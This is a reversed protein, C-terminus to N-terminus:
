FAVPHRHSSVPNSQGKFEFLGEYRVAYDARADYYYAAGCKALLNDWLRKAVAQADPPAPRQIPPRLTPEPYFALCYLGFRRGKNRRAANKKRSGNEIRASPVGANRAFDLIEFGMKEIGEAFVEGARADQTARNRQTMARGSDPRWRWRM